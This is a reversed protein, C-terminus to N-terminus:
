RRTLPRRRGWIWAKILDWLTYKMMFEAIVTYHPYKNKDFTDTRPNSKVGDSWGVFMCDDKPVALIPNGTEGEKLKIRIVSQNEVEAKGGKPKADTIVKEERVWGGRTALYEIGMIEKMTIPKGNCISNKEYERVM